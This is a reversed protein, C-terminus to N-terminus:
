RLVSNWSEQPMSILVAMQEQLNPCVGSDYAYISVYLMCTGQQFCVVYMHSCVAYMNGVGLQFWTRACHGPILIFHNSRM